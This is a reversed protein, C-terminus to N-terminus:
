LGAFLLSRRLQSARWSGLPMLPYFLYSIQRSPISHFFCALFLHIKFKLCPTSGQSLYRCRMRSRHVASLCPSINADRHITDAGVVVGERISRFGQAPSGIDRQENM